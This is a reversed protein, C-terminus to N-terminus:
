RNLSFPAPSPSNILKTWLASKRHYEHDLFSTEREHLAHRITAWQSEPIRVAPQNMRSNLTSIATTLEALDITCRSDGDARQYFTLAENALLSLAYAFAPTFTIHAM